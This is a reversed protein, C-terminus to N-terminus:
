GRGIAEWRETLKKVSVSHATRLEQAFMSIRLEEILWRIEILDPSAAPIGGVARLREIVAAWLPMVEAM